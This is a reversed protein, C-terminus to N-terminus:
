AADPVRWLRRLNPNLTSPRLAEKDPHSRDRISLLADCERRSDQLSEEAAARQRRLVENEPTLVEVAHVSEEM